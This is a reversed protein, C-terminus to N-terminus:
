SRCLGVEWFLLLSPLFSLGPGGARAPLEAVRARGPEPASAPESMPCNIAWSAFAAGGGVGAVALPWSPLPPESTCGQRGSSCCHCGYCPSLCSCSSGSSPNLPHRHNLCAAGSGWFLLLPPLCPGFPLLLFRWLWPRPPNHRGSSSKQPLSATCFSVGRPLFTQRAGPYSAHQSPLLQARASTTTTTTPKRQSTRLPPNCLLTEDWGSNPHLEGVQEGVWVWDRPVGHGKGRLGPLSEPKGTSPPPLVKSSKQSAPSHLLQSWVPPVDKQRAGFPFIPNRRAAEIAGGSGRGGGSGGGMHELFPKGYSRQEGQGAGVAVMAWTSRFPPHISTGPSSSEENDRWESSQLKGLLNDEGKVKSSNEKQPTPQHASSRNSTTIRFMRSTSSGGKRLPFLAGCSSSAQRRQGLTCEEKGGGRPDPQRKLVRRPQSEQTTYERIMMLNSEVKGAVQFWTQLNQLVRYSGESTPSWCANPSIPLPSTLSRFDQIYEAMPWKGQKLTCIHSEAHRAAM